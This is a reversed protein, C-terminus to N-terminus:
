LLPQSQGGEARPFDSGKPYVKSGHLNHCTAAISFSHAVHIKIQNLQFFDSSRGTEELNSQILLKVLEQM